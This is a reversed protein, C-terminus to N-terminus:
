FNNNNTSKFLLPPPLKHKDDLSYKSPRLKTIDKPQCAVTVSLNCFGNKNIRKHIKTRIRIQQELIFLPIDFNCINNGLHFLGYGNSIQIYNCGKAQYLKSISDSPIDFYKDDWKDTSQKIKIWEEHTIPKKMFPPIEGDYLNLNNIFNNFLNQCIIPLKSMKTIEWMNTQKNYKISCQMWDPSNYKKVEIGINQEEIFNCQIDNKSSSGALENEKQTNFPIENLYCQKVINYIKKEYKAGSVSCGSGKKSELKKKLIEMEKQKEKFKLQINKRKNQEIRFLTKYIIKLIKEM